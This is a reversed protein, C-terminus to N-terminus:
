QSRISQMDMVGLVGSLITNSDSIHTDGRKVAAKGLDYPAFVATM